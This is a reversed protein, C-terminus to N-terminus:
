NMMRAPPKPWETLHGVCGHNSGGIAGRSIKQAIRVCSTRVVGPWVKLSREPFLFLHGLPDIGVNLIHRQGIEVAFHSRRGLRWPGSFRIYRKPGALAESSLRRPEQAKALATVTWRLSCAGLSGRDSAASRCYSYDAAVRIMTRRHRLAM